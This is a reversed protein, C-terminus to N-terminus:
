KSKSSFLGSGDTFFKLALSIIGTLGTLLATVKQFAEEQTLFVFLAIGFITLLLPMRFLQWTAEQKVNKNLALMEDSTKQKLIYARFSASFLQVEEDDVTLIGSKLLRYLVETNKFNAFANSAFNMLLYKEKDTCRSWLYTYFGKYKDVAAFMTKELEYYDKSAPKDEFLVHETLLDQLVANENLQVAQGKSEAFAKYERFLQATKEVREGGPVVAPVFKRLFLSNAIHRLMMYLTILVILVLIVLFVIGQWVNIVKYRAPLHSRIILAKKDSKIFTDVPHSYISSTYKLVRDQNVWYWATDAATDKLAPMMQPDYYNNAIENAVSFYLKEFTSKCNSSSNKFDEISFTDNYIKYIGAKLQLSDLYARDAGAANLQRLHRYNNEARKELAVALGLQNKKVTQTIEQNHAYWTFISVPLATLSLIVLGAYMTYHHMYSWSTKYCFNFTNAPLLFMVWLLANFSISVWIFNEQVPYGSAYCAFVLLMSIAFQVSIAYVIRKRTGAFAEKNIDDMGQRVKYNIVYIGSLVNVPLLLIMMLISFNNVTSFDFSFIVVVQLFLYAGLFYESLIYFRMNTEKPVLWKLYLMPHFLMENGQYKRRFFIFWLLICTFTNVLFFLLSFALIRMNVPIIYGKDYFGILHFPMAAVPKIAVASTKGYLNVSRFFDDQRSRMAETLARSPNIKEIFNEQLNRNTESHLLVKGDEDVLCFGYGPPLITQVMSNMRTSLTVISENGFRSKKSIIVIFDGNTWSNVPELCFTEATGPLTYGNGNHLTRFYNRTEVNTYVPSENDMNVKIKQWGASNVWSIRSFDYYINGPHNNQKLYNKVLQPIIATDHSRKEIPIVSDQGTATKYTSVLSDISDLTFYAQRLERTFNNEVSDTITVLNDKIRVDAALLLLVQIIIITIIAAGAFFSVAALAFDRYSVYENKDMIYFKVMPLLILVLLLIIIVPYIFTIPVYHLKGTYAGSKLFGCLQVQEKGLMFPYYFMKYAIGKIDVDRIGPFLAKGNKFMISDTFATNITVSPDNYVLGSVNGRVLFSEFLETKEGDLLPTMFSAAPVYVGYKNGKPNHSLYFLSDHRIAALFVSTDNVARATDTTKFFDKALFIKGGTNYNDLQKQLHSTAAKVSTDGPKLVTEFSTEFYRNRETINRSINELILFGNKHVVDRNGPIFYFNYSIFFIAIVSIIAILGTIRRGSPILSKTNM